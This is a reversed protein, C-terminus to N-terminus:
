VKGAFERIAQALVARALLVPKGSAARIKEKIRLPYGICDLVILGVGAKILNKVAGKIDEAEEYPNLAEVIVAPGAKEWKARAEKKQEALPVFVGLKGEGLVAVVAQFLIRFPRLLLGRSRLEPFEDTCLLGIIEVGSEELEDIHKQLFPIIKKRGVLASTGDALRTILPFEKEPRLKEIEGRSLGDLAGKQIIEIGTGLIERIEGGVDERPSQGITVLGVKTTM